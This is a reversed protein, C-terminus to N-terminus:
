TGKGEQLAPVSGTPNRGPAVIHGDISDVSKALLATAQMLSNMLEYLRDLRREMRWMFWCAVFVPFGFERLLGVGQDFTV